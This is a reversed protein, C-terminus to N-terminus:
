DAEDPADHWVHHPNKEPRIMYTQQRERGEGSGYEQKDLATELLDPTDATGDGYFGSDFSVATTLISGDPSSVELRYRGWAVPVALRAPRGDRGGPDDCPERHSRKPSGVETM